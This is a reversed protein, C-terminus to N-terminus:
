TGTPAEFDIQRHNLDLYVTGGKHDRLDRWIEFSRLIAQEWQRTTRVRVELGRVLGHITELMSFDIAHVGELFTESRAYEFLFAAIGEEIVKARGSDEVERLKTDSNRQRNFFTRTVPSWGLMAAYTLHFVDHFRYGDPDWAMDRLDNGLQREDSTLRVSVSHNEELQEFRVSALRPLQENPPSEDDLLLFPHEEGDVTWREGTRQLNRLAVEDLSLGLKTALNAIYWLCDGLEDTVREDFLAHAEGDRVRKKYQTLLSGVESALGVLPFVLAQEDDDDRLPRQDTLNAQRQYEGLDM